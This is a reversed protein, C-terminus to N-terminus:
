LVKAIEICAGILGVFSIVILISWNKIAQKLKIDDASLNGSYFPSFLHISLIALFGYFLFALVLFCIISSVYLGHLM